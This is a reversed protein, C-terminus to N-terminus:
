PLDLSGTITRQEFAGLRITVAVTWSGGFPLTLDNVQWTSEAGTATQVIPQIGRAPQSLALHVGQVSRPAMDADMVDIAISVPGPQGPTVTLMAMVKEDMVHAFIPDAVVAAEALARPPPTFRWGAVLGLVLSVLVVEALISARLRRRANADGALAPRTLSRRNYLALAFVLLLLLLKVALIAGYPSLWTPGPVGLQIAALTIGSLLIAGVAFPIIRSFRRLAGDAEEGATALLEALPILAGLWFLIGAVHLFVAPRTLVQPAATSAHGSLALALPALIASLVILAAGARGGRRLGLFSLLFALGLVCATIGYSTGMSTTWVPPSLAATLPRGLADLGQLCLTFLSASLGIIVFAQAISQSRKPLPAVRSFAATGIGFALALFLAAKGAWLLPAVLPDGGPAAQTQTVSGISFVVSAGIPHGDISAVRWSLLHTGQTLDRPLTVNLNQGGSTASLLDTATGDPAILSVALPTVPENFSLSVEGPNTRLISGSVPASELLQAHAWASACFALLFLWALGVAVRGRRSFSVM